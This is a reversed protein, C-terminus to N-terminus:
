LLGLRHREQDMRRNRRKEQIALTALYAVVLLCVTAMWGVLPAVILTYASNTMNTAVGM